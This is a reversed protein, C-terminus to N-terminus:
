DILQYIHGFFVRNKVLNMPQVATAAGCGAVGGLVFKVPAPVTERM